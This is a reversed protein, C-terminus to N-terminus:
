DACFGGTARKIVVWKEDTREWGYGWGVVLRNEIELIKDNWTSYISDELVYGKPIPKEKKVWYLERSILELRQM